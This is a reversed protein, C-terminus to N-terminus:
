NTTRNLSGDSKIMDIMGQQREIEHLSGFHFFIPLTFILQDCLIPLTEDGVRSM